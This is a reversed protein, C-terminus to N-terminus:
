DCATDESYERDGSSPGNLFQASRPREFTGLGLEDSMGYQTVMHRVLDSARQLDDHAGTSVDGFVIEEAVVISPAKAEAQGAVHLV